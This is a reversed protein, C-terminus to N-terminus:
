TLNYVAIHDTVVHHPVYVLMYGLRKIEDRPSERRM